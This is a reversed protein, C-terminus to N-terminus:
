LTKSVVNWSHQGVHEDDHDGEGGGWTKWDGGGGGGGRTKWDGDGGGGGRTKWDGGGGFLATM